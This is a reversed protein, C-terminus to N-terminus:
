YSMFLSIWHYTMMLRKSPRSATENSVIHFCFFRVCFVCLCGHRLPHETHTKETEVYFVCL